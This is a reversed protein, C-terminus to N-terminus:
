EDKERIKHAVEQMLSPRNAPNINHKDERDLTDNLREEKGILVIEGDAIVHERLIRTMEQYMKGVPNHTLVNMLQAKREFDELLEKPIQITLM